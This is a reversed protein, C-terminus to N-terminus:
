SRNPGFTYLVEPKLQYQIDVLDKLVLKLYKSVGYMKDM